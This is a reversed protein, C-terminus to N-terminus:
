FETAGAREATTAEPTALRYGLPAPPRPDGYRAAQARAVSEELPTIGYIASGGFYRTYFKEEEGVELFEDGPLPIDVRLLKAGFMEEESIRGYCRVHGMIEVLAWGTYSM